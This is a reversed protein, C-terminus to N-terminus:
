HGSPRLKENGNYKPRKSALGPITRPGNSQFNEELHFEEEIAQNSPITKKGEM